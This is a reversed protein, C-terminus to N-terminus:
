HSSNLRTSKRDGVGTEGAEHDTSWYVSSRQLFGYRVGAREVIVPKRAEARNRGAGAFPVGHSQLTAMSGLINAEGYNVNNAIGVADVNAIKLAAAGVEPDAFFGENEITHGHQPQHLSCELNSFRVDASDLIDRVRRFPVNPNDVNMLNIDGTLLATPM